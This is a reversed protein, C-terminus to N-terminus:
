LVFHLIARSYNSKRFEIDCLRTLWDQECKIHIMLLTASLQVSNPSLKSCFHIEISFSLELSVWENNIAGKLFLMWEGHTPMRGNQDPDERKQVLFGRESFQVCLSSGASVVSALPMSIQTNAKHVHNESEKTCIRNLKNSYKSNFLVGNPWSLEYITWNNSQGM